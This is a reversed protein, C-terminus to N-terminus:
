PIFPDTGTGEFHFATQRVYHGTEGNWDSGLFDGSNMALSGTWVLTGGPSHGLSNDRFVDSHVGGVDKSIAAGEYGPTGGNMSCTNSIKTFTTNHLLQFHIYCSQGDTDHWGVGSQWAPSNARGTFGGDSVLFDFDHSWGTRCILVSFNAGGFNDGLIADNAQIWMDQAGTGGPIVFPVTTLPFATPGAGYALIVSMHFATPLPDTLNVGGGSCGGAAYIKGDYCYLTLGTGDSWIGGPQLLQVSDGDSISFPLFWQGTAPLDVIYQRCDGRPVSGGAGPQAPNAILCDFGNYITSWTTGGDRSVQLLCGDRQRFMSCEEIGDIVDRWVAALDQGSHAADDQWVYWTALKSLVGMFAAIHTPDNPVNIQFCKTTTPAITAPIPILSFPQVRKM